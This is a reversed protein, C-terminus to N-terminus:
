AVENRHDITDTIESAFLHHEIAEEFAKETHDIAM